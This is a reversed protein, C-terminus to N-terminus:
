GLNPNLTYTGTLEAKALIHGEIANMVDQRDFTGEVSCRPVDLAYLEFCYRHVREDNWPPAPGDYGFYTGKMAEDSAFWSTYDNMGQRSGEPGSPAQKGGATVGDSCQRAEIEFVTAPIDVLVWHVFDGRALDKSVTRGEQNVDDAVTPADPDVCLLALSQCGEPVDSWALQPNRNDSLRFHNEPDKQGFAFESPIPQNDSFDSSTLKM